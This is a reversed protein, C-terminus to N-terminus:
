GVFCAPIYIYEKKFLLNKNDDEDWLSFSIKYFEKGSEDVIFEIDFLPSVDSPMDSKKSSYTADVFNMRLSKTDVTPYENFDKKIDEYSSYQLTLVKLYSKDETVKNLITIIHNDIQVICETSFSDLSMPGLTISKKESENSAVYELISDYVGPENIEIKTIKACAATIAVFLASLLFKKAM